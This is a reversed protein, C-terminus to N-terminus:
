QNGGQPQLSPWSAFGTGYKRRASQRLSVDAGSLGMKTETTNAEMGKNLREQVM